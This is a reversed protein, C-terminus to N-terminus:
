VHFYEAVDHWRRARVIGNPLSQEGRNWAYDGFLVARIGAAAAGICHKPHDDILYDAGIERCLEGKTHELAQLVDPPNDWIGAYHLEKFIGPFHQAIWADTDPKLVERRSTLTVLDFKEALRRLVPLAEEFTRHGSVGMFSQLIEGRAIAEELPVSWVTAWDEQYDEPTLQMGWQQNSFTIFAEASRALVDDIDVAITERSTM